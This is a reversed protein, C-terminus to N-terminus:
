PDFLSQYVEFTISWYKFYLSICPQDRFNSCFIFINWGFYQFTMCSCVFTLLVQLNTNSCYLCVLWLFILTHLFYNLFILIWFEPFNLIEVSSIGDWIKLTQNWNQISKGITSFYIVWLAVIYIICFTKLDEIM